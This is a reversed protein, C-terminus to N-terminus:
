PENAASVPLDLEGSGSRVENSRASYEPGYSL